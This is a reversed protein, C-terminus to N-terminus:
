ARAGARLRDRAITNFNLDNRLLAIRKVLETLAQQKDM